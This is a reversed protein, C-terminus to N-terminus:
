DPVVFDIDGIAALIDLRELRMGFDMDIIGM